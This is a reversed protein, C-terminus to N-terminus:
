RVWETVDSPSTDFLDATLPQRDLLEETPRVPFRKSLFFRILTYIAGRQQGARAPETSFIEEDFLKGRIYRGFLRLTAVSPAALVVGLVGALSAGFLLAILVVVPHLDLSGGMIRPVLFMAELNQIGIYTLGTVIGFVIGAEMGPLTSSDTTLAFLVAPIMALGPGFNPIIELVGAILALILPNPLGLISAAIYTAVGVALCLLLQGRLYANWIRSLERFLRLVDGRYAEPTASVIYEVFKPGDRMLYFSMVFVLATTIIFSLAGGLVNIAPAALSTVTSQLLNSVADGSTEGETDSDSDSTFANELEELPVLEIGGVQIPTSLLEELDAQTSEIMEPLQEGFERSQEVMRPILLAGALWFGGGVVIWTVLVALTRRNDYGPVMKLRKEFFAVAPSFLYALLMALAVATWASRNIRLAMLVVLGLLVLSIIIKTNRNWPPSTVTPVKSSM